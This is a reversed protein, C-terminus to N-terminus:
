VRATMQWLLVRALERQRCSENARKTSTTIMIITGTMTMTMAM